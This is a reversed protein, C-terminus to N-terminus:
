SCSNKVVSVPFSVQLHEAGQRSQFSVRSMGLGCALATFDVVTGALIKESSQWIYDGQGDATAGM